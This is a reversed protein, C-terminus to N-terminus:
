YKLSHSEFECTTNWAEQLSLRDQTQENSICVQLLLAPVLNYVNNNQMM